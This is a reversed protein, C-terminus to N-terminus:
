IIVISTLVIFVMFFVSVIIGGINLAIGIKVGYDNKNKKSLVLGVIGLVLGIVPILLSGVISCIGLIMGVSYLKKDVINKENM